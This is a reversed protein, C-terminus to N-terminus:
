TRDQNRLLLGPMKSSSVMYGTDDFTGEDDVWGVYQGNSDYVDLHEGRTTSGSKCTSGLVIGGPGYIYEM